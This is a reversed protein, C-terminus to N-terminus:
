CTESTLEQTDKRIRLTRVIRVTWVPAQEANSVNSRVSRPKSSLHLDTRLSHEFAMPNGLECLFSLLFIYAGFKASISSTRSDSFLDFLEINRTRPQTGLVKRALLLGDSYKLPVVSVQTFYQISVLTLFRALWNEDVSVPLSDGGLCLQQQDQVEIFM